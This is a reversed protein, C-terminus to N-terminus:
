VTPTNTPNGCFNKQLVPFRGPVSGPNRCSRCSKRSKGVSFVDTAIAVYCSIGIAKLPKICLLICSGMKELVPLYSNFVVLKGCEGCAKGCAQEAGGDL